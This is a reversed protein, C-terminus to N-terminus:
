LGLRWSNDPDPTWSPGHRLGGGSSRSIHRWILYSTLIFIIASLLVDTVDNPLLTMAVDCTEESTEPVSHSHRWIWEAIVDNHRWTHSTVDHFRQSFSTMYMRCDRWQSTVHSKVDQSRQSFSTMDMRCDRWQSTVHSKHRRPFASLIVDNENLLSTMYKNYCKSFTGTKTCEITKLVLKWTLFTFTMVNYVPTTM